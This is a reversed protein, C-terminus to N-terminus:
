NAHALKAFEVFKVSDLSTYPATAPLAAHFVAVYGSAYSSIDALGSHSGTAAIHDIIANIVDIAPFEHLVILKQSAEDFGCIAKVVPDFNVAELTHKGRSNVSIWVIHMCLAQIEAPACLLIDQQEKTLSKFWKVFADFVEVNKAVSFCFGAWRGPTALITTALNDITIQPKTALFKAVEGAYFRLKGDGDKPRPTQVVIDTGSIDWEAIRPTDESVTHFWVDCVFIAIAERLSKGCITLNDASLFPLIRLCMLRWAFDLIVITINDVATEYSFGDSDPLDSM